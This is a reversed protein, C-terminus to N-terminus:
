KVKKHVVHIRKSINVKKNEQLIRVSLTCTHSIRKLFYIKAETSNGQSLTDNRIDQSMVYCSLDGNAPVNKTAALRVKLFAIKYRIHIM